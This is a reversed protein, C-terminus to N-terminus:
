KIQEIKRESQISHDNHTDSDFSSNPRALNCQSDTHLVFSGDVDMNLPGRQHGQGRRDYDGTLELINDFGQSM